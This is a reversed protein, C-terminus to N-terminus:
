NQLLELLEHKKMRKVDSSLGKQEVINRLEGVRMRKYNVSVGAEDDHSMALNTDDDDDSDSDSILDLESDTSSDSDSNLQQLASAQETIDSISLGELEEELTNAVLAAGVVHDVITDEIAAEEVEPKLINLEIVSEETQPISTADLAISKTQSLDYGEEAEDDSDTEYESSSVSSGDSEDDSVDILSNVEAVPHQVVDNAAQYVRMEQSQAGANQIRMTETQVYQILTNIKEEVASTRQRIYFFLLVAIVFTFGLSILLGQSLVM